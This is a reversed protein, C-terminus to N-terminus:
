RKCVLGPRRPAVIPQNITPLLQKQLSEDIPKSKDYLPQSGPLTFISEDGMMNTVTPYQSGRPTSTPQFPGPLPLFMEGTRKADIVNGIRNYWDYRGTSGMMPEFRKDPVRLDQYTYGHITKFSENVLNRSITRSPGGGSTYSYSYGDQVNSGARPAKTGYFESDYRLAMDPTSHKLQVSALVDGVSGVLGPSILVSRKFRKPEVIAQM